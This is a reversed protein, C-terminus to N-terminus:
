QKEALLAVNLLLFLSQEPFIAWKVNVYLWESFLIHHQCTLLLGLLFTNSDINSFFLDVMNVTLYVNKKKKM